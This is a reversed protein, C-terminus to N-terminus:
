WMEDEISLGDREARAFLAAIHTSRHPQGCEHCKAGPAPGEVRSPRGFEDIFEVYAKVQGTDSYTRVYARLIRQIM